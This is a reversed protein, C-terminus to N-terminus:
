SFLFSSWPCTSIEDDTPQREASNTSPQCIESPRLPQHESDHQENGSPLLKIRRLGVTFCCLILISLLHSKALECMM